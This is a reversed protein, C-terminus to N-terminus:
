PSRMTEVASRLPPEVGQTVDAGPVVGFASGGAGSEENVVLDILLAVGLLEPPLGFERAVTEAPESLVQFIPSGALQDFGAGPREQIRSILTGVPSPITPDDRLGRYYALAREVQERTLHTRRSLLRRQIHDINGVLRHAIADRRTDKLPHGFPDRRLLRAMEERYAALDQTFIRWAEDDERIVETLTARIPELADSARHMEVGAIELHYADSAVSEFWLARLSATLAPLNATHLLYRELALAEEDLSVGQMVIIASPMRFDYLRRTLDAVSVHGALPGLSRVFVDVTETVGLTRLAEDPAFRLLREVNGLREGGLSTLPMHEAVLQVFREVDELSRTRVAFALDLDSHERVAVRGPAMGSVALLVYERFGERALVAQLASSELLNRVSTYIREKDRESLLRDTGEAMGSRLGAPQVFARFVQRLPGLPARDQFGLFTDREGRPPSRQGWGSHTRNADYLYADERMYRRAEEGWPEFDYQKLPPFAYAASLQGIDSTADQWRTQMWTVRSKDVVGLEHLREIAKRGKQVLYPESEFGIAEGVDTLAVATALMRGIGAGIDGFTNRPGMLGKDQLDRIVMQGFRPFTGAYTYNGGPRASYTDGVEQQIEREIEAMVRDIIALKEEPSFVIQDPTGPVTGGAGHPPGSPDNGSPEAATKLPIEVRFTAGPGRGLDRENDLASIRGGLVQEVFEKSFHLGVGGQEDRVRTRWATVGQKFLDEPHVAGFGAGTDSVALIVRGPELSAVMEVTGVREPTEEIAQAANVLLERVVIPFPQGQWFPLTENRTWLKERIESRVSSDELAELDEELRDFFARLLREPHRFERRQGGPDELYVRGEEVHIAM